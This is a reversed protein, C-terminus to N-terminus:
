REQGGLRKRLLEALGRDIEVALVRTGAELLRETLVGTGPGVELVTDGEGVGALEVMAALLNHDILFNQGFMKQPALGAQELM